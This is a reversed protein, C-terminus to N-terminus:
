PIYGLVASVRGSALAKEEPPVYTRMVEALSRSGVHYPNEGRELANSFRDAQKLTSSTSRALIEEARGVAQIESQSIESGNAIRERISMFVKSCREGFESAMRKFTEDPAYGSPSEKDPQRATLEANIIKLVKQYDSTEAINFNGFRLHRADVEALVASNRFSRGMDVM